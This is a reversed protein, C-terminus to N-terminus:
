ECRSIAWIRNDTAQYYLYHGDASIEVGSSFNAVEIKAITSFEGSRDDRQAVWPQWAGDRDSQFYLSLEDASISPDSKAADVVLFPASWPENCAVIAADTSECASDFAFRGCGDLAVVLSAQPSDM